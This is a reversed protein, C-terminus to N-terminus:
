LHIMLMHCYSFFESVLVLAQTQQTKCHKFEYILFSLSNLSPVPYEVKGPIGYLSYKAFTTKFVSISLLLFPYQPFVRLSKYLKFIAEVMDAHMGSFEHCLLEGQRCSSNLDTSLNGLFMPLLSFNAPVLSFHPHDALCFHVM